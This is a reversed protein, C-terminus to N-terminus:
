NSPNYGFEILRETCIRREDDTFLENYEPMIVHAEVSLDLRMLDWLRTLGSSPNKTYILKKAAEYGGLKQVMQWFYTPTYGLKSATYYINVMDNNFKKILDEAQVANKSSASVAQNNLPKTINTNNCKQVSNCLVRLREASEEDIKDCFWAMTDLARRTYENSFDDAGAHAVDNRVNRVEHAWNKHNLTLKDKFIGHWHADAFLQLCVTNDLSDVLDAYEGTLPLGKRTHPRLSEIVGEQWWGDGYHHSLVYGIYSALVGRFIELGESLVRKNKLLLM